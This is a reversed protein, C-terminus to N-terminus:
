EKRWNQYTIQAVSSKSTQTQMNQSGTGDMNMADLIDDQFYYKMPVYICGYVTQEGDVNKPLRETAIQINTELLKKFEDQTMPTFSNTRYQFEIKSGTILLGKYTDTNMMITDYYKYESNIGSNKAEEDTVMNLFWCLTADKYTNIKDISGAYLHYTKNSSSTGDWQLTYFEPNSLGIMYDDTRKEGSLTQNNGDGTITRRKAEDVLISSIDMHLASAAAQTLVDFTLPSSQTGKIQVSGSIKLTAGEGLVIEGGEALTLNGDICLEGGEAVVIKCRQGVYVDGCIVNKYGNLNLYAVGADYDERPKNNMYLTYKEEGGNELYINGNIDINTDQWNNDEMYMGGYSIISYDWLGINSTTEESEVAIKIDTTIRSEYGNETCTVTLNKFSVHTSDQEFNYTTQENSSLTVSTADDVKLVYSYSYSIKTNDTSVNKPNQNEKDYETIKEGDVSKVFTALKELDYFGQPADQSIVGSFAYNGTLKYGAYIEQFKEEDTSKTSMALENQLGTKIQDLIAECSYFNNKSNLNVLKMRYSSYAMSMISSSLVMVFTTILLVNALAAGKNDLKRKKKLYMLKFLDM